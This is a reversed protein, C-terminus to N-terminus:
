SFLYTQHWNGDAPSYVNLSLGSGNAWSEFVACGGSELTIDSPTPTTQAPTVVNWRGLWFDFQRYEPATCPSAPPARRVLFTGLQTVEATATRAESDAAGGLGEATTGNLRHVQLDSASVGSPAADPDYQLTLSTGSGLSTGAPGLVYGSNVASPDRPLSSARAVTISVPATLAGAPIDLRVAGELGTVTGGEPGIRAGEHVQLVRTGSKQESTATIAATGPAGATVLGTEGVTAVAEDGSTWTVPRDTLEEGAADRVTAVLQIQDGPVPQGVTGSLTVSAVAAPPPPPPPPPPPVAPDTPGDGGCGALTTIGALVVFRLLSSRM